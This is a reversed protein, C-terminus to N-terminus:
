TEYEEAGSSDKAKKKERYNAFQKTAANAALGGLVAGGITKWNQSGDGPEFQNGGFRRASIAGVGAGLAASFLGNESVDLHRGIASHYDGGYARPPRQESQARRENTNQGRRQAVQQRRDQGEDESGSSRSSSSGRRQQRRRPGYYANDASRERAPRADRRRDDLDERRRAPRYFSELQQARVADVDEAAIDQVRRRDPRRDEDRDANRSSPGNYVESYPVYGSSM